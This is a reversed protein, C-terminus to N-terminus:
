MFGSCVWGSKPSLFGSFDPFNIKPVELPIKHFFVIESKNDNIGASLLSFSM